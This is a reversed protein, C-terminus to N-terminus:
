GKTARYESFIGAQVRRRVATFGAQQLADLITAPPVCFEVTDWFYSMLSEADRNRTSVWTLKPVLTKLYFKFLQYSLKSPPRTIELLLLTGGPKLVRKCEEFAGRLDAMHRLAFGMCLFDFAADALPLQECRGQLAKKARGKQVAERLMKASTDLSVVCGRPGVIRAAPGSVMGTGCALDLMRMGPALGNAVLVRQRYLKDTGLSMLASIQDYHQASADFLGKLLAPRQSDRGYFNKLTPHPPLPSLVSANSPGAPDQDIMPGEAARDFFALTSDLSGAPVSGM